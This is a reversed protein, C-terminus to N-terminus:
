RENTMGLVQEKIVDIKKVWIGTYKHIFFSYYYSVLFTIKIVM